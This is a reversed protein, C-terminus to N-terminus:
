MKLTENEAQHIANEIRVLRYNDMIFIIKEEKELSKPVGLQLIVFIFADDNLNSLKDNLEDSSLTSMVEEKPKIIRSRARYNNVKPKIDVSSFTYRKEKEESEKILEESVGKTYGCDNCKHGDLYPLMMGNCEPCFDMPESQTANAQIYEEQAVTFGEYSSNKSSPNEANTRETLRRERHLREMKDDISM